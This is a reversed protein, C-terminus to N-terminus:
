HPEKAAPSELPIGRRDRPTISEHREPLYIQYRLYERPVGALIGLVDFSERPVTYRDSICLNEQRLFADLVDTVKQLEQFEREYSPLNAPKYPPCFRRCHRYKALM